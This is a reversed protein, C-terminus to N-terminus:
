PAASNQVPPAVARRVPEECDGPLRWDADVHDPMGAHDPNLFAQAAQIGPPWTGKIFAVLAHIDADSLDKAFAPMDTQYGPGALDLLSFKIIHFLEADGHRWAHGTGDLPPAPLRGQANAHRWERQGGLAAGHCAACRDAYIVKGHEGPTASRAHHAIWVTAAAAVAALLIAAATAILFRRVFDNQAM